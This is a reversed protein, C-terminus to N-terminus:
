KVDFLLYMIEDFDGYWFFFNFLKILKCVNVYEVNVIKQNDNFLFICIFLFLLNFIFYEFEVLNIYKGNKYLM